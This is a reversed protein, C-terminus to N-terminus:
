DDRPRADEVPRVTEPPDKKKAVVVMEDITPAESLAQLADVSFSM